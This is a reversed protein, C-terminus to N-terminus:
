KVLRDVAARAVHLLAASAPSRPVSARLEAAPAPEVTLTQASHHAIMTKLWAAIRSNEKGMEACSNELAIDRLAKSAQTVANWATHVQQTLVTLDHLDRLLGIGGARIGHFLARGVRGPGGDRARGYQELFPRLRTVHADCWKALMAATQWIEADRNHKAAVKVLAAALEEEAEVLLSLYRPLLIM